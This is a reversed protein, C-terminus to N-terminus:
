NKLSESAEYEYTTLPILTITFLLNETPKLDGDSYYTKNYKIGATLCDNKYEYVLDYYETLDIKRNRSTNFSLSNKDDFNYEVSNKFINTSGIDGNEEIFHFKTILNNISFTANIDNYEFDSYNNDISFNYGITIKENLENKISGFINSHKKNLTSKSPIQNEEKDRLVTALKFEFFKNIEELNYKKEKKYNLGLTMSRGGEFTDTLGLRNTAFINGVDIKKDSNSYNKMDGPNFRFSIKPTLFNTYKETYKILPLSLDLNFLSGLEIQPSSKYNSVKKGISNLNKLNVDFNSNLGTDFTHNRSSYILDNNILTKLNNTNILENSGSSFFTLDGELYNQTISTDFNYYPFIYQYRDSNIKNLSEFTEIGSEFNYKEHNLFLKVNNNLKDLDDPRVSSKTLHNNFVKLYSDNSVREMKMKLSSSDFNELNLDLDYKAFLHSLNKKKNTTKSRYNNVIGIDAIFNSYENAQRYETNSMLIKSDFWTPKFTFDKNESMAYFYPTTLSSGLINSNNLEPKLFGSQREVSPDPHFFKPFYFVPVDYVKLVANDYLIQRKTKDHVIREAKISWTPM